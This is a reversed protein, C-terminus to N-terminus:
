MRGLTQKLDITRDSRIDGRLLLDLNTDEMTKQSGPGEICIYNLDKTFRYKQTNDLNVELSFIKSQDHMDKIMVPKRLTMDKNKTSNIRWKTLTDLM